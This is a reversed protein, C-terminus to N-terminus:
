TRFLIDAVNVPIGPATSEQTWMTPVPTNELAEIVASAEITPAKRAARKKATASAVNKDVVLSTGAPLVERSVIIATPATKVSGVEQKLLELRRAEAEELKRQREAQAAEQVIKGKLPSYIDHYFNSFGCYSSFTLATVGGNKETASKHGYQYDSATASDKLALRKLNGFTLFDTSNAGDL